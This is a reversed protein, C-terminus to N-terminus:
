SNIYRNQNWFDSLIEKIEKQQSSITDPTIGWRWRVTGAISMDDDIQKNKEKKPPEKKVKYYAFDLIDWIEDLSTEDNVFKKFAKTIEKDEDSWEEIENTKYFEDLAKRARKSQEELTIRKKFKEFLKDEDLETKKKTITEKKEQVDDWEYEDILDWLDKDYIEKALNEARSFDKDALDFLYNKDKSVLEKELKNREEQIKKQEEELKSKDTSYFKNSEKLAEVMKNPDWNYKKFVGKNEESLAEFFATTEPNSGKPAEQENTKKDENGEM